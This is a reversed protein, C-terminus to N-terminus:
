WAYDSMSTSMGPMSHGNLQEHWKGMARAHCILDLGAQRPQVALAADQCGICCAEINKSCDKPRETCQRMWCFTYHLSKAAYPLVQAPTGTICLSKAWCNGLWCRVCCTRGLAFSCSSCFLWGTCFLLHRSSCLSWHCFFNDATKLRWTMNSSDPSVM